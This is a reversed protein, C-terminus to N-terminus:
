IRSQALAKGARAVVAAVSPLYLFIKRFAGLYRDISGISLNELQDHNILFSDLMEEFGPNPLYLFIKRFEGLYRDSSGISLIELQDHSILFFDLM